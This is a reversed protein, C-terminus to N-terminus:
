RSSESLPLGCATMLSRAPRKGVHAVDVGTDVRMVRYFSVLLLGGAILLVTSLAVEVAVMAERLRLKKGAETAAASKLSELPPTRSLRWAPALGCLIVSVALSAAAFALVRWDISVEDMRPLEPPAIQAVVQLAAFALAIGAMAGLSANPALRPRSKATTSASTM